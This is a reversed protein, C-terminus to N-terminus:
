ESHDLEHFYITKAIKLKKGECHTVLSGSKTMKRRIKFIFVKDIKEVQPQNSINQIANTSRISSFLQMKYNNVKGILTLLVLLYQVHLSQPLPLARGDFLFFFLFFLTQSSLINETATFAVFGIRSCVCQSSMFPCHVSLLSQLTRNTQLYEAAALGQVSMSICM